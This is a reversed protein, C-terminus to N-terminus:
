PARPGANRAPTAGPTPERVVRLQGQAELPRLLEPTGDTSGNDAVVVEAAAAEAQPAVRELLTALTACRNRTPIVVSATLTMLGAKGGHLRGAGPPRGADEPVRGHRRARRSGMHAARPHAAWGTRRATARAGPGGAGRRDLARSPRCGRRSV